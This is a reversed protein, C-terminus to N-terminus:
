PSRRGRARQAAAPGAGPGPRRLRGCCRSPAEAAASPGDRTGTRRTRGARTGTRGTPARGAGPHGDLGHVTALGALGSVTLVPALLPSAILELRSANAFLASLGASDLYEVASLNVILPGDGRARALAAALTDANSMDVEGAVSLVWRGDARQHASLSLPATM